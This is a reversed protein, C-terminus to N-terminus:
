RSGRGKSSDIKKAREKKRAELTDWFIKSCYKIDEPTAEKLAKIEFPTAQKKYECIASLYDGNKQVVKELTEIKKELEKEREAIEKKKATLEANLKRAQSPYTKQDTHRAESQESGRALGYKFGVQSAFTDQLDQLGERGGLFFSSTFKVQEKEHDYKLPVFIFHAHPTKEDWHEVYQICNDLGYRKQLYQKADAFYSKWEKETKLSDPSASVVFEVAVSANKQPKRKLNANKICDRYRKLLLEPKHHDGSNLHAREPHTVWEPKETVWGGNSAYVDTRSNHRGVNYLGVLTQIKRAHCVVRGM